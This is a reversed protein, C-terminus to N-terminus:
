QPRLQQMTEVFKLLDTKSVQTSLSIRLRSGGAPVTPPRIAPVSFGADRLKSALAVTASEEGITVPIIPSDCSPVQWGQAQLQQRLTISVAQLHKRQGELETLLGVAANAAAACGAPAATSFLYSRCFNVLFDKCSQSCCVFGGIGGLAKSLTGVKILNDPWPAAIGTDDILGGGRTGYVGTAHAEDVVLGCAYRNAVDFLQPIPAKDGDMSFVSETVIIVKEFEHRNTKLWESVFDLDLHPYIARHAGSLRVGDIISAHNLRDSLIADSKGAIASLVGVNTAYGSPFTIAAPSGALTALSQHLLDHQRSTGGIVPSAGSGWTSPAATAPLEDISGRIAQLVKPHSRLGLYDNSGLDVAAAAPGRPCRLRGSRKASDVAGDFFKKWGSNM